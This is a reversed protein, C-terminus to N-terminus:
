LPSWAGCRTTDCYGLVHPSRLGRRQRAHRRTSAQAEQRRPVKAGSRQRRSGCRARRKRQVNKVITSSEWRPGRGEGLRPRGSTFILIPSRRRRRHGQGAGTPTRGSPLPPPPPPSQKGWTERPLLCMCVHVGVLPHSVARSPAERSQMFWVYECNTCPPPARYTDHSIHPQSPTTPRRRWRTPQAQLHPGTCSVLRSKCWRGGTVTHPAAPLAFARRRRRPPTTTTSCATPM